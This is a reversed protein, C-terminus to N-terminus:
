KFENIWSLKDFSVLKGYHAFQRDNIVWINNAGSLFVFHTCWLFFLDRKMFYVIVPMWHHYRGCIEMCQGWFIGSVLFIIVRHSSYGPVCDIKIGASPIAWSHIVDKSSALVQLRIEIPMAVANTGHLRIMNSIGRRMPRYQSKNQKNKYVFKTQQESDVNSLFNIINTPLGLNNFIKVANATLVESKFQKLNYFYLERSYESKLLVQSSSTFIVKIDKILNKNPRNIMYNSLKFTNKKSALYERFLYERKTNIDNLLSMYKYYSSYFNNNTWSSRSFTFLNTHAPVFQDLPTNYKNINIWFNKSTQLFYKIKFIKKKKYISDLKFINDNYFNTNINYHYPIHAWSPLYNKRARALRLFYSESDYYENNLEGPISINRNFAPMGTISYKSASAPQVEAVGWRSYWDTWIFRTVDSKLAALFPYDFVYYNTAVLSDYLTNFIPLINNRYTFNNFYSNKNKGLVREIKAKPATLIPQKIALNAVDIIKGHSRNEDFRPKYVKQYSNFIGTINRNASRINLLNDFKYSNIFSFFFSEPYPSFLNNWLESCLNSDFYNAIVIFNIKNPNLTLDYLKPLDHSNSWNAFNDFKFTTFDETTARYDAFVYFSNHSNNFPTYFHISNNYFNNISMSLHKSFEYSDELTFLNSSELLNIFKYTALLFPTSIIEDVYVTPTVNSDDVYLDKFYPKSLIDNKPFFLRTKYLFNHVYKDNYVFENYVENCETYEEITYISNFGEWFSDELMKLGQWNLFDYDQGLTFFPLYFLNHVSNFLNANKLRWIFDTHAYSTNWYARAIPDNTLEEKNQAFIIPTEEEKDIFKDFNNLSMNRNHTLFISTSPEFYNKNNAFKFFSNLDLWKNDISTKFKLVNLSINKIANNNHFVSKNLDSNYNYNSHRIPTLAMQKNSAMSKAVVKSNAFSTVFKKTFRNNNFLQNSNTISSIQYHNVKKETFMKNSSLFHKKPLNLLIKNIARFIKKKDDDDNLIESYKSFIFHKNLNAEHTYFLLNSYSNNLFWSNKSLDLNNLTLFYIQKAGTFTSPTRKFKYNSSLLKNASKLHFFTSFNNTIASSSLLNQQRKLGYFHSDILEVDSEFLPCLKQYKLSFESSAHVLHSNFIKSFMRSHRFLSSEHFANTGLDSFNLYNIIKNNDNPILITHSPLVVHDYMKNQYFKWMKNSNLNTSDTHSYKLSKGFSSSYSKKVSYNLDIDKPYYYEWGWQYARIGIVMETTGFGDFYDVADTSESIIISAAWSVPVIATILDGCKSRSVGRTERRPRTRLNCWRVICLFTIIFFVIIFIFVFWLWYQYILIHIFWLDNHMFSAAAIFPEPYFLKVTPVSYHYISKTNELYKQDYSPFLHHDYFLSIKQTLSKEIFWDFNINISEISNVANIYLSLDKKLIKFDTEYLFSVEEWYYLFEFNM